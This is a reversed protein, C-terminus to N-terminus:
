GPKRCHTIRDAAPVALKSGSTYGKFYTDLADVDAGGIVYNYAHRTHGSIV